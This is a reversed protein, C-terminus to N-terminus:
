KEGVVGMPVAIPSSNLIASLMEAGQISFDGTIWFVGGDIISAVSPAAVVKGDVVIALQTSSRGRIVVEATADEFRRAGDETLVVEVYTGDSNANATTNKIDPSGLIVGKEGWRLAYLLHKDGAWKEPKYSWALFLDEPLMSRIEDRKLYDNILQMNSESVAGVICGYSHSMDFLDNFSLNYVDRLMADVVEVCPMLEQLSITNYMVLCGTSELLPKVLEPQESEYAIRLKNDDAVEFTINECGMQEMRHRYVEANAEVASRADGPFNSSLLEMEVVYQKPQVDASEALEKQSSTLGKYAIFAIAALAVAIILSLFKRM